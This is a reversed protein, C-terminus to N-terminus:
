IFNGGVGTEFEEGCLVCEVTSATDIGFSKGFLTAGLYERDRMNMSRVDNADLPTEFDVICRAIMATNAQGMNKNAINALVERDTGAPHRLIGETYRKGDIEIGRPLSFSFTWSEFPIVEFEDLNISVDVTKKCFPCKQKFTAESGYTLQRIKFIIYDQENMLLSDIIKEWKVLGESKPTMDGISVICRSLITRIVKIGNARIEPKAIQEEDTGNMERVTIEKIVEGSESKYGALMDFTVENQAM